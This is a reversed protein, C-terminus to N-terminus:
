SVFNEPRAADLRLALSPHNSDMERWCLTPLSSNQWRLGDAARRGLDPYACRRGGAAVLNAVQTHAAMAVSTKSLSSVVLFGQLPREAYQRARTRDTGPNSRHRRRRADGRGKGGAAPDASRDPIPPANQYAKVTLLVPVVFGAAMIGLAAVKWWSSLSGM